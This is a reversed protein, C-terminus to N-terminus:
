TTLPDVPLLAFKEWNIAQGSFRGFEKIINMATVLSSQTHGLFLLVDNAYLAIREEGIRRQVRHMDLSSRIAIALLEM